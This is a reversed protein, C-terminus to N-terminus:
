RYHRSKNLIFKKIVYLPFIISSVTAFFNNVIYNKFYGEDILIFAGGGELAGLIFMLLIYFHSGTKNITKNIIKNIFFNIILIIIIYMIVQM